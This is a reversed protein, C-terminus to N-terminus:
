LIWDLQLTNFLQRLQETNGRQRYYYRTILISYRAPLDDLLDFARHNFLERWYNIPVRDIKNILTHYILLATAARSVIDYNDTHLMIYDCSSKIYCYFSVLSTPM